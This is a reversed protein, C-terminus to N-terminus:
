CCGVAIVEVHTQPFEQYCYHHCEHEWIHGELEALQRDFFPGEIWHTWEDEFDFKSYMNVWYVEEAEPM